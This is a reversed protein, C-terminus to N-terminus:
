SAPPDAALRRTDVHLFVASTFKNLDPYDLPVCFGGRILGLLLLVLTMAAAYTDGSGFIDAM